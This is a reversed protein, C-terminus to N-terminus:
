DEHATRPCVNDKNSNNCRCKTEKLAIWMSFWSSNQVFSGPRLPGGLIMKHCHMSHRLWRTSIGWKLVEAEDRRDTRKDMRGCPVVRSGSPPIKDFKMNTYNEFRRDLFNLNILVRFSHHTSWMFLQKCKHYYRESNYNYHSINWFLNTSPILARMKHETIKTRFDNRKYSLTSFIHHLWLPWLHCYLIPCASLM